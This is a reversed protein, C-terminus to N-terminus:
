ARRRRILLGAGAILLLTAPEPIIVFDFAAATLDGAALKFTTSGVQDTNLDLGAQLVSGGSPMLKVTYTGLPVGTLDIVGTWLDYTGVSDQLLVAKRSELGVGWTDDGQWKKRTGGGTYTAYLRAKWDLHAAGIQATYAVAAAPNGLSPLVGMGPGGAGAEDKVTGVSGSGPAKYVAAWDVGAAAFLPMPVENGSTPTATPYIGIDFNFGGLGQNDGTVVVSTLMSLYPDVALDIANLPSTNSGSIAFVAKGDTALVSSAAVLGVVVALKIARM